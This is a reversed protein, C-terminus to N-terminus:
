RIKESVSIGDPAKLFQFNNMITPGNLRTNSLAIVANVYNKSTTQGGVSASYYSTSSVVQSEVAIPQSWTNGAVTVLNSYGSGLVWTPAGNGTISFAGILIDNANNTNMRMNVIPSAVSNSAGSDVGKGDMVSYATTIGSLELAILNGMDGLADTATLTFSAGGTINLAIWIELDLGSAGANSLLRTYVNNQTDTVKIIDNANSVTAEAIAVIANGTTPSSGFASTTVTFNFGSQQGTTSQVFAPNAM